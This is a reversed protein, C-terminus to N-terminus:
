WRLTARALAAHDTSGPLPREHRQADVGFEVTTGESGLAGLGYGLRYVRGDASTGVGFTPTGVFRRGM